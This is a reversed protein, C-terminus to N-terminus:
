WLRARQTPRLSVASRPTMAWQMLRITPVALIAAAPTAVAIAPVLELRLMQPYGLLAGLTAYLCLGAATGLGGAAVQLALSTRVLNFAAIAVFYALVAYVLSSMGFTTPVFLDAAVGALFGIVPGRGPGAVYGAAVAVLILVDPHAGDFHIDVMLSEQVVVALGVVLLARAWNWGTV